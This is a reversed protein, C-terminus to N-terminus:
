FHSQLDGRICGVRIVSSGINVTYFEGEGVCRRAAITTPSMKEETTGAGVGDEGRKWSQLDTDLEGAGQGDQEACGERGELSKGSFM